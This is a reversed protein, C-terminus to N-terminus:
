CCNIVYKRYQDDYQTNDQWQVPTWPNYPPYYPVCPACKCKCRGTGDCIPCIHWIGDNAQQYGTGDCKECRIEYTSTYAVTDSTASNNTNSDTTDHDTIIRNLM